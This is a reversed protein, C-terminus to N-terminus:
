WSDFVYAVAMVPLFMGGFGEPKTNTIYRYPRM